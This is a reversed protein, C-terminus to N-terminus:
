VGGELMEDPKHGVELEYVLPLQGGQTVEDGVEHSM